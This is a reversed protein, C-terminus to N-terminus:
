ARELVAKLSRLNGADNETVAKWFMGFFLKAGFSKAEAETRSEVRTGSASPALAYSIRLEIGGGMLGAGVAFSQPATLETVRIEETTVRSGVARTARFRTGMKVPLPDILEIKSVGKIWNPGTTPDAMSAFVQDIPKSVEITDTWVRSAM